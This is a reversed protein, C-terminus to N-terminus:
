QVMRARYRRTRRQRPWHVGTMQILVLALVMPVAFIAYLERLRTEQASATNSAALGGCARESFRGPPSHRPSRVSASRECAVRKRREREDARLDAAGGGRAPDMRGAPILASLLLSHWLSIACPYASWFFTVAIARGLIAGGVMRPFRMQSWSGGFGVLNLVVYGTGVALAILAVLFSVSAPDGPVVCPGAAFGHEVLHVGSYYL